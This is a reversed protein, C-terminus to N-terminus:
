KTEEASTLKLYENEINALNQVKHIQGKHMIFANQCLNNVESLIHTSILIAKTKSQKKIYSRFAIIQSPDLGNIPEDLILNPPNHILAQAFSVRQQQGKSLNKILNNLLDSLQFDNCLKKIREKTTEANLNHCKATYMLFDIVKMDPPLRTIEPVYGCLEMAKENQQCIDLRQNEKDTIFIHGSTPYHFGCIAKIVTSKGSGNPGVLGTICGEEVTFSVDQVKFVTKSHSKYEKCFNQVEIL